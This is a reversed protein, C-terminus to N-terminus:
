KARIIKDIISPTSFGEFVIDTIEGILIQYNKYAKKYEQIFVNKDMALKCLHMRKLNEESHNIGYQSVSEQYDKILQQCTEDQFMMKEKEKLLHFEQSDQLLDHLEFALQQTKEM